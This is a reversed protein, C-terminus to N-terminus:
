FEFTTNTVKMLNNTQIVFTKEITKLNEIQNEWQQQLTKENKNPLLKNISPCSFQNSIKRQELPYLPFM